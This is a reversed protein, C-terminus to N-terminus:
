RYRGARYGAQMASWAVVLVAVVLGAVMGVTYCVTHLVWLLIAAIARM